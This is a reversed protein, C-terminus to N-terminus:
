ELEIVSNSSPDRGSRIAFRSQLQPRVGESECFCLGSGSRRRHFDARQKPEVPLGCLVEFSDVEHQLGRWKPVRVVM